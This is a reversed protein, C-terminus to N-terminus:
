SRSSAAPDRGAGQVELQEHQVIRRPTGYREHDLTPLPAATSPAVNTLVPYMQVVERFARTIVRLNAGSSEGATRPLHTVGIEVIKSGSRALKVMIETNIMAGRSEIDVPELAGRRFLKFACDIDRVPVYFLLRVLRNWGWANVRRLLPDQRQIRYGAVVDAGEARTLLLPIENMDFQNDADTFFVYDLVAAGFGTRLAEGYGRNTEHRVLRVCPNRRAQEQVLQATADSSGDDVVIVEYSSCYRAAVSAITEIARVINLEENFAPLVFSIGLRPVSTDTVTGVASDRLM